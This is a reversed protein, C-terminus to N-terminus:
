LNKGVFLMADRQKEDSEVLNMRVKAHKAELQKQLKKLYTFGLKKFFPLQQLIKFYLKQQKSLSRILMADTLSLMYEYSGPDGQRACRGILQRDIRGAEQLDTVIVHLGGAAKVQADLKIDTGRGAMNTAITIQGPRGALGVIKAEAEDQKANLLQHPIGNESFKKSLSESEKLSSTGVLVAGNSLMIRECSEFVAQWKDDATVFVKCGFFKRLSPKNTPIKLLQTDYVWAIEKAIEKLTGSMGGFHLYRRFFRQYSIKALAKTPASVELGEKIEILQSLGHSWTRDPMVRGTSPDIIIVKGENSVLYDVDCHYYHIAVLAQQILSERRIRGLWIGKKQTAFDQLKDLANDLLEIQRLEDILRYDSEGLSQAFYFADHYAQVEEANLETKESLILPTRAEDVLVSDAEDVIAFHLGRQMLKSALNAQTLNHAHLCLPHTNQELVVHDKLYDFVVQAHTTYVIDAQYASKREEPPSEATIIGVRLGLGEYIPMMEQADRQALYDNVTIVHVPIGMLAVVAAPLTAMLTKGEGTAMEVIKGTLIASGAMIQTPFHRMGLRRFAVERVLAFGDILLYEDLGNQSVQTQWDQRLDMLAGETLEQLSDSRKIIQDALQKDAHKLKKFAFQSQVKRFIRDFFALSSVKREPRNFVDAPYRKPFKPM